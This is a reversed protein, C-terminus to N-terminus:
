TEIRLNLPVLTLLFFIGTKSRATDRRLSRIMIATHPAM